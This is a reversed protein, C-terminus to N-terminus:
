PKPRFRCAVCGGNLVERIVEVRKSERLLQCSRGFLEVGM